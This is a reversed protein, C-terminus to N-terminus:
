RKVALYEFAQREAEDIGLDAIDFYEYGFEKCERIIERSRAINFEAWVRMYEDTYKRDRMWNNHELNDRIHILREAHNPSTDVLFVARHEQELEKLMSPWLCGESLVDDNAYPAAGYYGKMFTWVVEDRRRLRAIRQEPTADDALPEVIKDFIDPQSDPTTVQRISVMVADNSIVQGDFNKRVKRALTTKGCRASGGILYIM